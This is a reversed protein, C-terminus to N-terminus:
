YINLYYIVGLYVKVHVALIDTRGTIPNAMYLRFLFVFNRILTEFNCAVYVCYMLEKFKQKAEM